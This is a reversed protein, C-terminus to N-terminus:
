PVLKCYSRCKSVCWILLLFWQQIDGDSLFLSANETQSGSRSAWQTGSPSALFLLGMDFGWHVKWQSLSRGGLGLPKPLEISILPESLGPLWLFVLEIRNGNGNEQWAFLCLKGLSCLISARLWLVGLSWFKKVLIVFSSFFNSQKAKGPRSMIALEVSHALARPM